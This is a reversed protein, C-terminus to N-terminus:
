SRGDKRRELNDFIMMALNAVDCCEHQIDIILSDDHLALFLEDREQDLRALLHPIALGEWGGKYDNQKLVKEMEYAFHELPERIGTASDKNQSTM